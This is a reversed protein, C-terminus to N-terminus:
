ATVEPANLANVITPRGYRAEFGSPKRDRSSQMACFCAVTRGGKFSECFMRFLRDVEAATCEHTEISLANALLGSSVFGYEITTGFPTVTAPQAYLRFRYTKAM